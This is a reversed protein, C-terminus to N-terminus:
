LRGLEKLYKAYLYGIVTEWSRTDEPLHGYENPMDSIVKNTKQAIADIGIKTNEHLCALIENLVVQFDSKGIAKDKPVLPLVRTVVGEIEHMLDEQKM